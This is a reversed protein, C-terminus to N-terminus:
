AVERDLELVLPESVFRRTIYVFAHDHDRLAAWDIPSNQGREKGARRDIADRDDQDQLYWVFLHETESLAVVPIWVPRQFAYACGCGDERMTTITFFLGPAARRFNNAGAHFFLEDTAALTNGRELAKKFPYDLLKHHADEDMLKPPLYIVPDGSNDRAVALLEHDLEQVDYARRSFRQQQRKAAEPDAIPQLKWDWRRKPSTLVVNDFHKLVDRMVTTKGCDTPGCYASRQNPEIRDIIDDLHDVRV